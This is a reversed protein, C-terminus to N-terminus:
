NRNFIINNLVACINKILFLSKFILSDVIKFIIRADDIESHHADELKLDLKDIILTMTLPRKIDKISM